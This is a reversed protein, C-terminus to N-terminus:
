NDISVEGKKSKTGAMPLSFWFTSGKSEQSKFWMKGGSSDVIAKAMYLGLGTGDTERQVINTARYFKKFLKSQENKPIGYGTDTVQSIVESGKRSIFVSIEGKEPTYKVANSILNMYVNRILKPDINILPLQSHISVTLNQKKENIKVQLEKIVGEVLKGLDTPEPDIIIRGSEIRSINLLADVLAIMRENSDYINKVFSEQEKNLKGGDGNLLMEGFWKMASLPTRLQHSALSIFETKMRDVDREKTVDRFVIVCGIVKKDKSLLPAASDAVATKSGDKRILITHNFMEKIKGTAMAEKIFKDNVTNDKEYIFRLVQDYRKGIAEEIPFGSINAAIQNFMTIKLHSDVVFVGDGISHLIADIKNKEKDVKGKEEEIDQLINLIAKQQKELSEKKANLEKTRVEIKGELNSRGDLIADAMKNYAESLIGIEDSSKIRARALYNGATLAKTTETLEEIPKTILRSILAILPLYLMTLGAVVTLYAWLINLTPALAEKEDIEALLCWNMEKIPYHSGLVSVGRYDPFINVAEHGSHIEKEMDGFVALCDTANISDVKQKLFTDKGFRSPTIMYGEKNILYTEGTEGLGTRNSIIERLVDMDIRTVLVGEHFPTSVAISNKGNKEDYHADQIYTEEEGNLFIPEASFDAGIEEPSSSASVKGESDLVFLDYFERNTDRIVRLEENTLESHTAAIEIKDKQEELFYSVHDARSQVTTELHSYIQDSLMRASIIQMVLGVVAM